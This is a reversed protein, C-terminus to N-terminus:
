GPNPLTVDRVLAELDTNAQLFQRLTRTTAGYETFQAATLGHEDYAKRFEPFNDYLDNLIRPDVPDELRHTPEIGSTNFRKQWGFPPSIVVNGGIFQSWHMHNRFAASLLRTRYGREQYLAYAKKFVAV